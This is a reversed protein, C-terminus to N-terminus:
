NKRCYNSVRAQLYLKSTINTELKQSDSLQGRKYGFNLRKIVFSSDSWFLKIFEATYGDTGPSKFNNM